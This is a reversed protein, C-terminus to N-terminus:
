NAYAFEQGTLTLKYWTPHDIQKMAKRFKTIRQLFQPAEATKKFCFQRPLRTYLSHPPHCKKLACGTEYSHYFINHIGLEDRIFHVAATLMAEDWLKMYPMLIQRFYKKLDQSNGEMGDIFLETSENDDFTLVERLNNQAECVWDSQIEEILAHDDNFDLDIRAWALTERFFDRQGRKMIPHGNCKFMSDSTPKVLQRYPQEHQNSFNMQLVLNYGPRSTQQWTRQQGGWSTVTLLFTYTPKSWAMEFLYRNLWGTGNNALIQKVVPRELLRAYATRKLEAVKTEHELLHSLLVLAYRDKFYDFRTKGQPLCAMIESVIERDM